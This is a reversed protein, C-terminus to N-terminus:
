GDQGKRAESSAGPDEVLQKFEAIAGFYALPSDGAGKLKEAILPRLEPALALAAKLANLAATELRELRPPDDGKQSRFQDAAAEALNIAQRATEIASPTWIDGPLPGRRYLWRAERAGSRAMVQQWLARLRHVHLDDCSIGVAHRIVDVDLTGGAAQIQKKFTESAHEFLVAGIALVYNPPADEPLVARELDFITRIHHTRLVHFAEVGVVACLQAQLVWDFVRLFGYPTEVYLEVPNATALNQIDIINNEELRFRTASDIGDIVEVPTVSVLDLSALDIRKQLNLKLQSAIWSLGAEPALGVLFAAGLWWTPEVGPPTAPAGFIQPVAGILPSLARFGVTAVTVGLLLQFTSRLFSIAGLEYNLLQRILVTTATVYAGLFAAVAVSAVASVRKAEDVGALSLGGSWILADYLGLALPSSGASGPTFLDSKPTLLLTFGLYSFFAFLTATLILGRPERRAGGVGNATKALGTDYKSRVLELLPLAAENDPYLVAVLDNYLAGRQRRVIVRSAFLAFPLACALALALLNIGGEM